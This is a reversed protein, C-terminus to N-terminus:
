EPSPPPDTCTGTRLWNRLRRSLSATSDHLRAYEIRRLFLRRNESSQSFITRHNFHFLLAASRDLGIPGADLEARIRRDIDHMTRDVDSAHLLENRHQWLAWPIEWVWRILKSAWLGPSFSSRKRSGHLDAYQQQAITWKSSPLGELFARWGLIAQERLAAQIAPKPHSSPPPLNDRWVNLSSLIAKTIAPDTNSSNLHRRLQKLSRQWVPTVEPAPCRAVHESTEDPCPCRPCKASNWAKIQHMKHGIGSFGSAHKVQFRHSSLSTSRSARKQHKWNIMSADGAGFRQKQQWYALTRPVSTVELLASPLSSSVKAQHLWVRWPEAEVLWPRQWSSPSRELQRRFAQANRDMECNLRAHRDLDDWNTSDDQHAEIHLLTWDLPCQNMLIRTAEKLDYNQEDSHTLWDRQGCRLLPGRGDCCLQVHGSTLQYHSCLQHIVYVLAYLGAHESRPASQDDATGPVICLGSIRHKSDLGELVWSATGIGDKNSGDSV